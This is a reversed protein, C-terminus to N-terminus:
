AYGRFCDARLTSQNPEDRGARLYSPVVRLNDLNARCEFWALKVGSSHALNDKAHAIRSDM